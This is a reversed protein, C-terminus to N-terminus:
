LRSIGFLHIEVTLYSLQSIFYESFNTFFTSFELETEIELELKNSFATLRVSGLKLVFESFIEEEELFGVTAMFEKLEVESNIEELAFEEFSNMGTSLKISLNSYGELTNKCTLIKFVNYIGRM